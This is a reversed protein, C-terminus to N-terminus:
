FSNQPQLLDSPTVPARVSQMYTPHTARTGPKTSHVKQDVDAATRTIPSVSPASVESHVM